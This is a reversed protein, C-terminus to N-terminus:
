DEPPPGAGTQEITAERARETPSTEPAIPVPVLVVDVPTPACEVLEATVTDIITLDREDTSM